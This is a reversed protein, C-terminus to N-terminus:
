ECYQWCEAYAGVVGLPSGQGWYEVLRRAHAPVEDAREWRGLLRVARL